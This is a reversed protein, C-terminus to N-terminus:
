HWIDPMSERKQAMFAQLKEDIALDLPPATYEQLENKWFSNARQAASLQGADSWNEYSQVDALRSEHFATQYNALTHKCGFFHGGPGVERFADFAMSNSDITLGKLFTHAAGLYDADLVLKQRALPKPAGPVM